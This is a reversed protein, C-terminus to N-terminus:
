AVDEQGDCEQALPSSVLEEFRLVDEKNGGLLAQVALRRDQETLDSHRKLDALSEKIERSIKECEDCIM